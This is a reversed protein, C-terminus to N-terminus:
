LQDKWRKKWRERPRKRTPKYKLLTYPIREPPMREFHDLWNNRYASIKKKTVNEIELRQRIDENPGFMQDYPGIIYTRGFPTIVDSGRGRNTKSPSIYIYL